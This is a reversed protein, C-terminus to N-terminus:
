DGYAAALDSWLEALAETRETLQDLPMWAGKEGALLSKYAATNFRSAADAVSRAASAVMPFPTRNRVAQLFDSEAAEYEDSLRELESKM